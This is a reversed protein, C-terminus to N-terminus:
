EIVERKKSWVSGELELRKIRLLEALMDKYLEAQELDEVQKKTKLTIHAEKDDKTIKSQEPFVENWKTNLRLKAKKIELRHKMGVYSSKAKTFDMLVDYVSANKINEEIIHQEAKNEETQKKNEVM